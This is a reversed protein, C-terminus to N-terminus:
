KQNSDYFSQSAAVFRGLEDRRAFLAREVVGARGPKDYLWEFWSRDQEEDVAYSTFTGRTTRRARRARERGAQVRVRQQWQAKSLSQVLPQHLAGGAHIAPSEHGWRRCQFLSPM